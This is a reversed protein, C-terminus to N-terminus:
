KNKWKKARARVKFSADNETLIIHFLEYRSVFTFLWLTHHHSQQSTATNEHTM